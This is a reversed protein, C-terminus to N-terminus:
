TRIGGAERDRRRERRARQVPRPLGLTDRLSYGTTSSGLLVPGPEGSTLGLVQGLSTHRSPTLTGTGASSSDPRTPPPYSSSSASSFSSPDNALDLDVVTTGLEVNPIDQGEDDEYEAYSRAPPPPQVTSPDTPMAIIFTLHIPLSTPPGDDNPKSSPNEDHSATTGYPHSLSDHASNHAALGSRGTMNSSSFGRSFMGTPRSSSSRSAGGEGADSSPVSAQTTTTSAVSLPLWRELLGARDREDERMEREEATMGVAAGAGVQSAVVGAVRKGDTDLVVQWMEPKEGLEKSEKGSRGGAGGAGGPGGPFFLSGGGANRDQFPWDAASYIRLRRRRYYLFAQPLPTECTMLSVELHPHPSLGYFSSLSVVSIILLVALAVLSIIVTQFYASTSSGGSGFWGSGNNNGGGGGSNTSSSTSGVFLQSQTRSSTFSTPSSSATDMMSASTPFTLAM